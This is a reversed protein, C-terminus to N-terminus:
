HGFRWRHLSAGDRRLWAREERFGPCLGEVVAWFAASHDMRRLHAVEHAAVYDLVPPPALVLRWSFMLRGEASCSGWRSRTDRLSMATPRRGLADAHRDVAAALRDRARAKLWAAVATGSAATLRAGDFRARGPRLAIDTPVGEVPLVTGDGVVEIGQVEGLQARLWREKSRAFAMAEAEPVFRPVTLTVRGDLRSVRLSLRRARASRRLAVGIPPEGALTLESTM